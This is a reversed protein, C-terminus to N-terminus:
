FIVVDISAAAAASTSLVQMMAQDLVDPSPNFGLVIGSHVSLNGRRSVEIMNLEIDVAV